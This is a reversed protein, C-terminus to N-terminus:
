REAYRNRCERHVGHEGFQLPRRSSGKGGYYRDRGLLATPIERRNRTLTKALGGMPRVDPLKQLKRARSLRGPLNEEQLPTETAAM